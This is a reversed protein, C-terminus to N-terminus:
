GAVPELPQRKTATDPGNLSLRAPADERLHLSAGHLAQCAHFRPSLHHTELM